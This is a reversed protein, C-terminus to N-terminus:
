FIPLTVLAKGLVKKFATKTLGILHEWFGWVLSPLPPSEEPYIEMASETKV